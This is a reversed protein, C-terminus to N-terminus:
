LSQGCCEDPARQRCRWVSAPPHRGPCAVARRPQAAGHSALSTWNAGLTAATRHEGSPHLFKSPAVAPPELEEVSGRSPRLLLNTRQQWAVNPCLMPTKRAEGWRQTKGRKRGLAHPRGDRERGGTGDCLAAQQCANTWGCSSAKEM